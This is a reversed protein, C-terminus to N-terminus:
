LELASSADDIISSAEDVLEELRQEIDEVREKDATEKEELLDTLESLLGDIAEHANELEDHWAECYEAKERIDDVQYSGPFYEEMNDASEEYEDRVEEATDKATELYDLAEEFSEVTPKLSLDMYLSENAGYLSSLKGSSTLESRRPVGCGHCRIVAGRYRPRAKYYPEGKKITRRCRGCTWEKRAKQTTVRPM